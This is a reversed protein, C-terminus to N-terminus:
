SSTGTEMEIPLHLLHEGSFDSIYFSDSTYFLFITNLQTFGLMGEYIKIFLGTYLM